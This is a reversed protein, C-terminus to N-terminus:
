GSRWPPRSISAVSSSRSSTIVTVVGLILSDGLSRLSVHDTFFERFNGLIWQGAENNVKGRSTVHPKSFRRRLDLM